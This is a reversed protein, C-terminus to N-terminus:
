VVLFRMTDTEATVECLLRYMQTGFERGRRFADDRTVSDSIWGVIDDKGRATEQLFWAYARKIEKVRERTEPVEEAVRDLRDLPTLRPMRSLEEPSVSDRKVSLLVVASHCTLLRSFRLKLNKLDRRHRGDPDEEALNRRYEYNLCLTRWFRMIDNTLFLPRFSAEHDRYDRWYSDIIEKLIREYLAENFLPQSELLLLMRATFYNRFDDDPGGIAGRIDDLYHITLYEGDNSFEPFGLDQVTRILDADLLTKRIWPISDSNCSGRHVFFLDLDSYESAELRGFSGTVYICLRPFEGGKVIGEVRSHVEDLRSKSYDRRSSLPDLSDSM